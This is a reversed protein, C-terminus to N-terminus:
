QAARAEEARRLAKLEEIVDDGVVEHSEIGRSMLDFMTQFGKAIHSGQQEGNLYCLM